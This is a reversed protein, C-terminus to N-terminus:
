NSITKDSMMVNQRPDISYAHFSSMTVPAPVPLTRSSRQNQHRMLAHDSTAAIITAAPVDSKRCSPQGFHDLSSGCCNAYKINVVTTTVVIAHSKTVNM